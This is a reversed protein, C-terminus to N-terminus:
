PLRLMGRNAQYSLTLDIESSRVENVTFMLVLVDDVVLRRRTGALPVSRQAGEAM